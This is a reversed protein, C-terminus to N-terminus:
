ARGLGGREAVDSLFKAQARECEGSENVEKEYAPRPDEEFGHVVELCWGGFPLRELLM